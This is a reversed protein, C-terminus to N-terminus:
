RGAEMEGAVDGAIRRRVAEARLNVLYGELQELGYRGGLYFATERECAVNAGAEGLCQDKGRAILELVGQLVRHDEEVDFAALLEEDNMSRARLVRPLFLRRIREILGIKGMM